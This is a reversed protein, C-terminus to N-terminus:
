LYLANCRWKYESFIFLGPQHYEPSMEKAVARAIKGEDRALEAAEEAQAAKAISHQTRLHNTIVEFLIEYCIDTM